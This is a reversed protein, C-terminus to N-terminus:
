RLSFRVPVTLELSGDAMEAPPAPLPSADQIM